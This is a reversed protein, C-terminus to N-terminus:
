SGDSGGTVHVRAPRRSGRPYSAAPGDPDAARAAATDCAAADIDGGAAAATAPPLGHAATARAPAAQLAQATRQADQPQTDSRAAGAAACEKACAVLAGRTVGVGTAYQGHTAPARHLGGRLRRRGPTRAVAARSSSPERPRAVGRAPLSGRRGRGGRVSCGRRVRGGAKAIGRGRMDSSLAERLHQRAGAQRRVSGSHRDNSQRGDGVSLLSPRVQGGFRM